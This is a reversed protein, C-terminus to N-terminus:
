TFDRTVKDGIYEGRLLFLNGFSDTEELGDVMNYHKCFVMTNESFLDKKIQWLSRYMAEIDGETDIEAAKAQIEDITQEKMREYCEQEFKKIENIIIQSSAKLM